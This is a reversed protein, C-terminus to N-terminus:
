TENLEVAFPQTGADLEGPRVRHDRMLRALDQGGPLGRRIDLAASFGVIAVSGTLRGHRGAADLRDSAVVRRHVRDRGHSRAALARRPVRRDAASGASPARAFGCAVAHADSAVRRRPRVLRPKFGGARRPTCTRSRSRACERHATLRFRRQRTANPTDGGRGSRAMGVPRWRHANEFSRWATVSKMERARGAWAEDGGVGTRWTREDRVRWGSGPLDDAEAISRSPTAITFGCRRRCRHARRPETLHADPM